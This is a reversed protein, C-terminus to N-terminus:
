KGHWLALVKGNNDIIIFPGGGLQTEKLKGYVLYAKNKKDYKVKYILNNNEGFTNNFIIIAKEKVDKENKIKETVINSSYNKIENSYDAINFSEINSNKYLMTILITLVIIVIASLIIKKKM